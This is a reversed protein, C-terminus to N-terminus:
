ESAFRPLSSSVTQSGLKNYQGLNVINKTVSLVEKHGGLVTAQWAGRGMPNGLCSINSHTAMEKELTDEQGLSKGQREQM